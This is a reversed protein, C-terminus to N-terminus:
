GIVLMVVCAVFAVATAYFLRDVTVLFHSRLHEPKPASSGDRRWGAGDTGDTDWTWLMDSEKAFLAVHDSNLM